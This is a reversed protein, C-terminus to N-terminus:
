ETAFLRSAEITQHHNVAAAFRTPAGARVGPAVSLFKMKIQSECDIDESCPPTFNLSVQDSHAAASMFMSALRWAARFTGRRQQSVRERAGAVLRVLRLM